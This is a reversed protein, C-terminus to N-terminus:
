FRHANAWTVKCLLDIYYEQVFKSKKKKLLNVDDNDLKLWWISARFAM